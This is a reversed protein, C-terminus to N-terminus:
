VKASTRDLRLVNELGKYMELDYESGQPDQEDCDNVEQRGQPCGPM